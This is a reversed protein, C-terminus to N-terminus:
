TVFGEVSLFSRETKSVTSNCSIGRSLVNPRLRNPRPVLVDFFPIGGLIGGRGLAGGRALTVVGIGRGASALNSVRAGVSPGLVELGGLAAASKLSRLALAPGGFSRAIPVDVPPGFARVSSRALKRAGNGTGTSITCCIGGSKVFIKASRRLAFM